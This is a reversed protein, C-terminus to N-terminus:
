WMVRREEDIEVEIEIELSVVAGSSVFQAFGSDHRKDDAEHKPKGGECNAPEEDVGAAVEVEESNEDHEEHVGECTRHHAV